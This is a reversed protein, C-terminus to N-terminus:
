GLHARLHDLARGHALAAAAADYHEGDKRAFAHDLGEYDYFTVNPDADFAAHVAAQQEKPVFGDACAVHLVVPCRPQEGTHQDLAVGYYGVAADAGTRTSTLFALRGGLCFGVTGVKGTCGDLGRLHEVTADLDAIGLELDFGQFLEFARAWEEETQDTINVGPEQRWFLDPCLGIYGASAIWDTLDRMVRNVVFIEQIVVVGAGAGSSPMALYGMFQGGDKAKITIERGM